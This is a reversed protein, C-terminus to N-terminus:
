AMDSQAMELRKGPDARETRGDQLCEVLCVAYLPPQRSGAGKMRLQPEQPQADAGRLRAERLTQLAQMSRQLLEPM